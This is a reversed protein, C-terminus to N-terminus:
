YQDKINKLKVWGYEILKEVSLGMYPLAYGKSRLYDCYELSLQYPNNAWHHFSYCTKFNCGNHIIKFSIFSNYRKIEIIENDVNLRQIKISGEIADENTIDSLPTLELHQNDQVDPIRPIHYGSEMWDTYRCIRQGAYQGFFKAKNELTNEM